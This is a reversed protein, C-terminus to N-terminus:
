NTHSAKPNGCVKDYVGEYQAVIKDSNFVKSQAVANKSFTKLLTDDRLLKLANCAMDDIDGLASLFGTVGHVNVEPLGGINTSIVPIGGAMAELAVLGFSESGSPLLFLDTCGLIKEIENTNGFFVTQDYIGMEKAQLRIDELLPGEGMLLLKSPFQASIKKFIKLVDGVRKVPRFNSIHTIIKEGNEALLCRNVTKDVKNIRKNIFNYIVTIPKKVEFFSLTEEKLHESVATIADSHKLSYAVATHYSPHKGILNIDTGHLTTVVKIDFGKDLLMQRAMCAAYAHPIAYHVHFLELSYKLAVEVMKTSLALEYPPYSFLPYDQVNVRHFFVNKALFDLRVPQHSTIFHVQHGKRALAIGLETALVGSGGYTPYCVIGIKRM